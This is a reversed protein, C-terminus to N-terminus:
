HVYRHQAFYLKVNKVGKETAVKVIYVESRNFGKPITLHSSQVRDNVYVLAGRLDYIFVQNIKDSSVVYVAQKDNYVRVTEAVDTLGTPVTPAFQIFFRSEGAVPKGDVDRDPTYDFPYEYTNLGTLDIETGAALDIFKIQADYRNMGKFTLTMNGEWSTSLGLPILANDTNIVSSGAATLGSSSEKLSYIEPMANVGTVLKRTDSNGFTLSGYERKAIFTLVSGKDNSAIIDLKNEPLSSSRLTAHESGATFEAIMFDINFNDDDCDEAKEVLFAQQPAIYQTLSEVVTGSSGLKNCAAFGTGTWIQYADKIKGSAESCIKAFDITSMFPNGIFAFSSMKSFKVSVSVTDNNLKFNNSSRIVETTKGVPNLDGDIATFTSTWNESDYEHIRHYGSLEENAFFPLQIVGNTQSLGFESGEDDNVWLVFGEGAKLEMDYDPFANTWTGMTVPKGPNNSTDFKRLFTKPYGGYAFDGTVVGQLPSSLMHWRNRSADDSFGYQVYAKNYTLLDPRGIEAGAEFTITNCVYTGGEELVPYHVNNGSLAPITVDSAVTPAIGASWNDDKTWDTDSGIWESQKPKFQILFRSENAVPKGDVGKDPMYDFLYEYTNRNTLDIETEAALDIFKIQANYYDMGNFTLKIPGEWSTYLGLPILVDFTNIVNTGAAILGGSSSEKLSYIEPMTNISVVLKRTDSNGFTLSGFERKAIYTLVSGRDNSAIIDLKDELPPSARLAAKEEPLAFARETLGSYIILLWLILKIARM